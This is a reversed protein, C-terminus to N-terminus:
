VAKYTLKGSYWCNLLNCNFMDAMYTLAAQGALWGSTPVILVQSLQFQVLATSHM